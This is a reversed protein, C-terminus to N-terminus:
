SALNAQPQQYASHCGKLISVVELVGVESVDGPAPSISAELGARFVGDVVIVSDVIPNLGYKSVFEDAPYLAVVAYGNSGRLVFVVYDEGGDLPRAIGFPGRGELVYERGGVALKYVGSGLPVVEGSVTVRSDSQLEALYGVDSYRSASLALAGLAAM